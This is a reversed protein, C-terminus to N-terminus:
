RGKKVPLPEVADIGAWALCAKFAEVQATDVRL